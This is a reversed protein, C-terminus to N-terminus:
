VCVLANITKGSVSQDTSPQVAVVGGREAATQRLRAIAGHMGKNLLEV